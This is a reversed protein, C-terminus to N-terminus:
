GPRVEPRPAAAISRWSERPLELELEDRLPIGDLGVLPIEPKLTARARTVADPHVAVLRFGRRQYWRLAPLNDNTTILWLRQWGHELAAGAIAQLLASGVGRGPRLAELLMIECVGDAEDYALHGAWRGDLHAVFGPLATVEVLRGRTAMRTSGWSSVLADALAPADSELLPRVAVEGRVSGM